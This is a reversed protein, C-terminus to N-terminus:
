SKKKKPLVNSLNNIRFASKTTGLMENFHNNDSLGLIETDETILADCSNIATAVILCDIFDDLMKRLSFATLLLKTGNIPVTEIQDSHTLANIGRTVAESKLTGNKVYKAGKAALEFISIESIVIQHGNSRLKTITDRPLEKVAVGIIPLLYTTDLLIKL